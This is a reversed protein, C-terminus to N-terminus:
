QSGPSCAMATVGSQSHRTDRSDCQAPTNLGNRRCYLVPQGQQWGDRFGQFPPQACSPHRPESMASFVFGAANPLSDFQKKSFKTLVLVSTPFSFSCSLTCGGFFPPSLALTFSCFAPFTLFLLLFYSISGPSVPPPKRKELIYCFSSNLEATLM